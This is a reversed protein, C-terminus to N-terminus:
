VGLVRLRSVSTRWCGGAYAASCGARSWRCLRRWPDAVAGASTRGGPVSVGRQSRAADRGCWRAVSPRPQHGHDAASWRDACKIRAWMVVHQPTGGTYEAVAASGSVSGSTFSDGYVSVPSVAPYTVAIAAPVPVTGGCDSRATGAAASYGPNVALNGGASDRALVLRNLDAGLRTANRATWALACAVDGPAQNWTHFTPWARPPGLPRYIVVSLAQGDVTHYVPQSGHGPIARARPLHQGLRRCRRGRVDHDRHHRHGNGRGRHRGRGGRHRHAAPRAAKQGAGPRHGAAGRHGAEKAQRQRAAM